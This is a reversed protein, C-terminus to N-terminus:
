AHIVVLNYASQKSPIVEISNGSAAIRMLAILDEKFYIQYDGLRLKQGLVSSFRNVLHYLTYPEVKLRTGFAYKRLSREPHIVVVMGGQNLSSISAKLLAISQVSPGYLSRKFLILDFGDYDPHRELIHLFMKPNFRSHFPIVKGSIVAEPLLNKVQRLMSLNGDIAFVRKAGRSLFEDITRGPGCGCDAVIMGQTNDGLFAFLDDDLQRAIKIYSYKYLVASVRWSLSRMTFNM